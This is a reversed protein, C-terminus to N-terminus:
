AAARARTTITWMPVNPRWPNTRITIGAGAISALQAITAPTLWTADYCIRLAVKWGKPFEAQVVVVNGNNWSTKFRHPRPKVGTVEVVAGDPTEEGQIFLGGRIVDKSVGVYRLGTSVMMRKFIAVPLGYREKKSGKKPPLIYLAHRFQAKIKERKRRRSCTGMVCLGDVSDWRRFVFSNM